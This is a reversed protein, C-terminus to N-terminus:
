ARRRLTIDAAMKRSLAAAVGGAISLGLLGMGAVLYVVPQNDDNIVVPEVLPLGDGAALDRCIMIEDVQAEGPINLELQMKEILGVMEDFSPNHWSGSQHHVVLLRQPRLGSILIYSGAERVGPSDTQGPIFFPVVVHMVPILRDLIPDPVGLQRYTDLRTGPALVVVDTIMTSSTNGQELELVCGAGPVVSLGTARTGVLMKGGQRRFWFLYADLLLMHDLFAAGDPQENLPVTTLRVPSKPHRHQSMAFEWTVGALAQITEQPFYRRLVGLSNATEGLGPFFSDDVVTVSAWEQLRSAVAMGIFGGGVVAVVPRKCSLRVVERPRYPSIPM